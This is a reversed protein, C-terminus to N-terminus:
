CININSSNSNTILLESFKNIKHKNIQDGYNEYVEIFTVDEVLHESDYGNIHSNQLIPGESYYGDVTVGKIHGRVKDTTYYTPQISFGFDCGFPEGEVYINEYRVNRVTEHDIICMGLAHGDRGGYIAHIDKFVINELIDAQSTHGIELGNGVRDHWLVLDRCVIDRSEMALTRRTKIAICDDACKLFCHEILVNTCSRPQVGDTNQLWTIAKHNRVVANSTGSIVINWYNSNYIVPGDWIIDHGKFFCVFGERGADEIWKEGMREGKNEGVDRPSTSGDFIGQGLIKANEVEEAIVGARVVAGRAVYVNCNSKLPLKDGAIEHLGPQFYLIQASACDIDAPSHIGPKIFKIDSTDKQAAPDDAIEDGLIYVTYAPVDDLDYNIELSGYRASPITLEVLNGSINVELEELMSPRFKAKKVLVPFELRLDIPVDAAYTLWGEAGGNAHPHEIISMADAIGVPLWGCTSNNQRIGGRIVSDPIGPMHIESKLRNNDKKSFVNANIFKIHHKEMIMRQEDTVSGSELTCIKVARHNFYHEIFVEMMGRGCYLDLHQNGFDTLDFLMEIAAINEYEYLRKGSISNRRTFLTSLYRQQRTFLAANLRKAIEKTFPLLTIYIGAQYTTEIIEDFEEFADDIFIGDIDALVEDDLHLCLMNVGQRILRFVDFKDGPCTFTEGSFQLPMFHRDYFMGNRVSFPTTFNM